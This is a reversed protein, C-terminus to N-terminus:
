QPVGKMAAAVAARINNRLETKGAKIAPFFFPRTKQSVWSDTNGFVPHRFTSSRSGDNGRELVRAHPAKQSDVRIKVGGGSGRGSFSVTMRIAGPIRTSYSARQRMDDVIHQASARLKPRLERRLEIPVSGLQKALMTISQHDVVWGKSASVRSRYDRSAAAWQSARRPM